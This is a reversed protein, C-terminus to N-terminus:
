SSSRLTEKTRRHYPGITAMAHSQLQHAREMLGLDPRRPREFKSCLEYENLM